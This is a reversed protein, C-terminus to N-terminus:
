RYFDLDLQMQQIKTVLLNSDENTTELKWKLMKEQLKNEHTLNNITKLHTENM